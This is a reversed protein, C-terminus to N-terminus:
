RYFSKIWGWTTFEVAAESSPLLNIINLPTTMHGPGFPFCWAGNGNDSISFDFRITERDEMKRLASRDRWGEQKLVKSIFYDLKDWLAVGMEFSWGESTVKYALEGYPPQFIEVDEMAWEPWNYVTLPSGTASFPDFIIAQVRDLEYAPYGGGSFYSHARSSWWLRLGDGERHDPDYVKLGLYFKDTKESWGLYFTFDFSDDLKKYLFSKEPAGPMIVNGENRQYVIAKFAEPDNTGDEELTYAYDSPFWSWDDLKGDIEPLKDDPIHVAYFRVGNEAMISTNLIVLIIGACIIVRKLRM